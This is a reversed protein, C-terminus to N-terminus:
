TARERRGDLFARTTEYIRTAHTEVAAVAADADGAGLADLIARHDAISQGVAGARAVIRRRHDLLHNYLSMAMDAFVENGAARYLIAHFERDCLLFRVPDGDCETQADISARLATLTEPSMRAAASAAIRREILLRAAHVSELDYPGAWDIASVGALVASVDAKAVSTRAGHAVRLIGHAALIAIAGRITERSVSLSTALEREGPLEDGVALVGSAILAALKEAIAARVSQRSVQGMLAKTNEPPLRRVQGM